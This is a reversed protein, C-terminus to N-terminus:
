NWERYIRHLLHCWPLVEGQMSTKLIPKIELKRFSDADYDGMIVPHAIMDMNHFMSKLFGSQGPQMGRLKNISSPLTPNHLGIM